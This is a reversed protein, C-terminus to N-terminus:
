ADAQKLDNVQRRFFRPYGTPFLRSIWDILRADVGILLRPQGREAARLLQRAAEEPSTRAHPAFQAQQTEATAAPDANRANRAISTDIGGPHVCCVRVPSGSLEMEQRLAESYGRVAFKAANYASQTPVGILGFVSSINVLHSREAQKLLPLFSQCGHVVGWFNIEMLWRFDEKRTEEANAMLAVGANNVLLEIRDTAAAVEAAWRQLAPHDAIDLVTATCPTHPDTLSAVTEALSAENIDSLWLQCGVANLQLALARGIGSGAGTVVARKGSFYSM